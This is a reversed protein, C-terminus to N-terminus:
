RSWFARTFLILLTYFELRGAVMCFSLIWKALVPLEGYNLTPGVAGLGPGINFQCALVASLSTLIDLESASVVLTAVVLLLIALFVLNILGAVAEESFVENGARIRFIGQPEVIRKFDRRVVQFVLVIRSVKLGGATSGTCGGVFMLFLLLLQTAPVWTAYDATVFGTTSVISVVQFLATRVVHELQWEGQSYLMLAIVTTALLIILLYSQLEYDRAVAAPNREILLRFHQIFSIGALFMFVIVIYEIWINHFAAISETRTSFGGTGMTSFAHCVADFAGMGALMLLAAELVTFFLYLRWLARATEVVRPRMREAKAGSFEARYLLSGGQGLLPLIAIGLLVIGMGGLWHSLSRWLHVPRSLGDVDGIVTAGTTTFGSAAEFVADTLDPYSDSFYFPLAGFLCVVLWILSVLLLGERRMLEREERRLGYVIFLGAVLLTIVSSNLMGLGDPHGIVFAYLMPLLMSLGLLLTFHGLVWFVNRSFLTSVQM